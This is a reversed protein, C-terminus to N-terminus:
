KECAVGDHDRDMKSNATYLALSIKPTGHLGNAKAAANASRAIGHRYTKHVDACNKFHKVGAAATATSLGAGFASAGVLAVAM